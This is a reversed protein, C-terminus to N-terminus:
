LKYSQFPHENKPQTGVKRTMLLENESRGDMKLGNGRVSLLTFSCVHRKKVEREGERKGRTRRRGREEEKEKNKESYKRGDCM